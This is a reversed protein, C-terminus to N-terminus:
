RRDKSSGIIRGASDYFNTVGDGRREARGTVQGKDNSFTTTDGRTTATGVAQGKENYFTRTQPEASARVHGILVLMIWVIAALLLPAAADFAFSRQM